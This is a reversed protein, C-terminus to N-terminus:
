GVMEVWSGRGNRTEPFLRFRQGLDQDPTRGIGAALELLAQKRRTELLPGALHTTLIFVPLPASHRQDEVVDVANRVVISDLIKSDDALVTRRGEIGM